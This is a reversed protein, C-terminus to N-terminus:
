AGGVRVGHCLSDDPREAALTKVVQDHQILAMEQLHEAFIDLVVVALTWM